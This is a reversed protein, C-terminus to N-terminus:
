SSQEKQMITRMNRWLRRWEWEKRFYMPTFWVDHNETNPSLADGTIPNSLSNGIAIYGACGLLSLQLYAMRAVTADVDQGVFLVNQQYNIDQKHASEAFAILMAGSGCCCDNVSVYGKEKIEKALNEGTMEAMLRCVDYPSFYQGKRSDGFNQSM